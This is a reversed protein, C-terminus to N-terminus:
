PTGETDQAAARVPSPEPGGGIVSGIEDLLAGAEEEIRSLKDHEREGLALEGWAQGEHVIRLFGALKLALEPSVRRASLNRIRESRARTGQAELAQNVAAAFLAAGEQEGVKDGWEFSGDGRIRFVRVVDNTKLLADFAMMIEDPAYEQDTVRRGCCPCAGVFRRKAEENRANAM